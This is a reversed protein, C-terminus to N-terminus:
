GPGVHRWGGWVGRRCHRRAFAARWRTGPVFVGGAAAVVRALTSNDPADGSPRGITAATIAKGQSAFPSALISNDMRQFAVLRGGADCIAVSVKVNLERAKTLAGQIVRNAEDLTAAMPSSGYSVQLIRAALTWLTVRGDFNAM